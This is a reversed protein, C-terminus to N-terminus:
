NANGKGSNKVRIVALGIAFKCNVIATFPCVIQAHVRYTNRKPEQVMRHVQRAGM